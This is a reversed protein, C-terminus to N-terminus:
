GFGGGELDGVEEALQFQDSFFLSVAWSGKAFFPKKM